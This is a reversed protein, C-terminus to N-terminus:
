EAGIVKNIKDNLGDPEFGPLIAPLLESLVDHVVGRPILRHATETEEESWVLPAQPSPSHYLSLLLANAHYLTTKLRVGSHYQGAFRLASGSSFPEREVIPMMGVAIRGGLRLHLEKDWPDYLEQRYEPAMEFYARVMAVTLARHEHSIKTVEYIYRTLEAVADPPNYTGAEHTARIPETIPSILEEYSAKLVEYKTRFHNHITATGVGAAEALQDRTFDGRDLEGYLDLTSMIILERTRTRKTEAARQRPGPEETM